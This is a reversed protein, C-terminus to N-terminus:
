ITMFVKRLSGDKNFLKSGSKECVAYIEWGYTPELFVPFDKGVQQMHSFDELSAGVVVFDYDKPVIGMLMDRCSGGVLYFRM